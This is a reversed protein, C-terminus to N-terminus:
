QGLYKILAAVGLVLLVLMLPWGADDALGDHRRGDHRFADHPKAGQGTKGCQMSTAPKAAADGKTHGDSPTRPVIAAECLEAPKYLLRAMEDFSAICAQEVLTEGAERSSGWDAHEREASKNKEPVDFVSQPSRQPVRQARETVFPPPREGPPVEPVPVRCAAPPRRHRRSALRATADSPSLRLASAGGLASMGPASLCM